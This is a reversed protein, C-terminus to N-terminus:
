FLFVGCCSFVAGSWGYPVQVALVPNAAYPCSVWAFKTSWAMSFEKVIVTEVQSARKLIM